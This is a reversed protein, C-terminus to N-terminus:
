LLHVPRISRGTRRVRSRPEGGSYPLTQWEKVLRSDHKRTNFRCGDTMVEALAHGCKGRNINSGIRDAQLNGFNNASAQLGEVFIAFHCTEALADEGISRKIRLGHGQRNAYEPTKM